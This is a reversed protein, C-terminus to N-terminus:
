SPQMKPLPRTSIPFSAPTPALRPTQEQFHTKQKEHKERDQLITSTQGFSWETTQALRGGVGRDKAGNLIVSLTFLPFLAVFIPIVFDLLMKFAKTFCFHFWIFFPFPAREQSKFFPAM